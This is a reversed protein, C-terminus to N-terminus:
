RGLFTMFCLIIIPEGYLVCFIRCKLFYLKRLFRTYVCLSWLYRLILEIKIFNFGVMKKLAPKCTEVNFILWVNMLQWTKLVNPLISQIPYGGRGSTEYVLWILLFKWNLLTKHLLLARICGSFADKTNLVCFVFIVALTQGWGIDTPGHPVQSFERFKGYSM